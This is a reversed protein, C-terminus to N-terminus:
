AVSWTVAKTMVSRGDIAMTLMTVDFLTSLEAFGGGCFGRVNEGRVGKKMRKGKGRTKRKM